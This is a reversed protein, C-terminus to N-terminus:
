AGFPSSLAIEWWWRVRDSTKASIATKCSFDRCNTRSQVMLFCGRSSGPLRCDDTQTMSHFRFECDLGWALLKKRWRLFALPYSHYNPCTRITVMGDGATCSVWSNPFFWGVDNMWNFTRIRTRTGRPFNSYLFGWWWITSSGGM